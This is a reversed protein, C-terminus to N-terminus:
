VLHRVGGEEALESIGEFTLQQLADVFVEDSIDSKEAPSRPSPTTTPIRITDLLDGFALMWEPGIGQKEDIFIELERRREAVDIATLGTDTKDHVSIGNLSIGTLIKLTELDGTEAAWHLVTKGTTDSGCRMIPAGSDLLIRLATHSNNRVAHMFANMGFHDIINVDAGHDLLLRVANPQNFKMAEMLTTSGQNDTANIDAGSLLLTRIFQLPEPHYISSILATQQWNDRHDVNVGANLLMTTCTSDHAKMSQRLPGQGIRDVINPDAGYRLLIELSKHDGRAAAYLLATRRDADVENILHGNQQLVQELDLHLIGVVTKHIKTFKRREELPEYSPFLDRIENVRMDGARPTNEFCLITSWAM